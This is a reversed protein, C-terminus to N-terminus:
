GFLACGAEFSPHILMAQDTHTDGYGAIHTYLIVRKGFVGAHKPNICCVLSLLFFCGVRHKAKSANRAHDFTLNATLRVFIDSSAGGERGERGRGEWHVFLPGGEVLPTTDAPESSEDVPGRGQAPMVGQAVHADGGDEHHRLLQGHREERRRVVSGVVGRARRELYVTTQLIKCNQILHRRGTQRDTQRHAIKKKATQQKNNKHWPLSTPTALRPTPM